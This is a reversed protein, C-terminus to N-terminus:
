FFQAPQHLHASVLRPLNTFQAISHVALLPLPAGYLLSPHNPAHLFHRPALSLLGAPTHVLLHPIGLLDLLAGAAPGGALVRACALLTGDM